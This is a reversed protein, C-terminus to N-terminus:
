LMTIACTARWPPRGGIMEKTNKLLQMRKMCVGSWSAWGWGMRKSATGGSLSAISGNDEKRRLGMELSHTHPTLLVCSPLVDHGCHFKMISLCMIAHFFLTDNRWSPIAFSNKGIKWLWSPFLLIGTHDLIHSLPFNYFDVGSCSHMFSFSFLFFFVSRSIKFNGSLFSFSHFKPLFSTFLHFCWQLLHHFSSSYLAVSSIRLSM